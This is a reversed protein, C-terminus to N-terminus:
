SRKYNVAICYFSLLIFILICYKHYANM